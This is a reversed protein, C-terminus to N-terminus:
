SRVASGAGIAITLHASIIEMERRRDDRELARRLLDFPDVTMIDPRIAHTSPGHGAPPIGCQIQM